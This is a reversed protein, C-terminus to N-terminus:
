LIYNIKFLHTETQNSNIMSMLGYMSLCVHLMWGCAQKLIQSKIDAMLELWAPLLRNCNSMFVNYVHAARTSLKFLSLSCPCNVENQILYEVCKDQLHPNNVQCM